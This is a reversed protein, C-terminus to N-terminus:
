VVYATNDGLELIVPKKGAKAKLAWDVDPSRTFSLLKLRADKTFLAAGERHCPLISFAGDPLNTEALVEGILLVGIPTLTAPILIFPCGASIEMNLVEGNIRTAEEAAIRFTDILRTVKGKADNILKGAEICLADALENFRETFRNVCHVLVAASITQDIICANAMAVRTAEEGTYKDHVLLDDNASIPKNALYYPYAKALM